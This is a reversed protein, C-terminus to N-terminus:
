PKTCQQFFGEIISLFEVQGPRVHRRGRESEFMTHTSLSAATINM